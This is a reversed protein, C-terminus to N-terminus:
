KNLINLSIFIKIFNPLSFRIIYFQRLRDIVSDHGRVINHMLEFDNSYKVFAISTIKAIRKIDKPTWQRCTGPGLMAPTKGQMIKPDNIQKTVM